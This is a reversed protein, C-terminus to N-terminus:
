VLGMASDLWSKQETVLVLKSVNGKNKRIIKTLIKFNNQNKELAQDIAKVMSDDIADNGFIEDLYLKVMSETPYSDAGSISEDTVEPNTSVEVGMVDAIAQNFSKDGENLSGHVYVIAFILQFYAVFLAKQEQPDESHEIQNELDVLKKQISGHELEFTTKNGEGDVYEIDSLGELKKLNTAFNDHEKASVRIIELAKSIGNMLEPTVELKVEDLKSEIGVTGGVRIKGAKGDLTSVWTDGDLKSVLKHEEDDDGTITRTKVGDKTEVKDKSGITFRTEKSGDEPTFVYKGADLFELNEIESDVQESDTSKSVSDFYLTRAVKHSVFFFKGDKFGIAGKIDKGNYRADVHVSNSTRSGTPTFRLVEGSGLKVTYNVGTELDKLNTVSDSKEGGKSGEGKKFVSVSGNMTIKGDDSRFAFYKLTKAFKVVGAVKKGDLFEGEVKATEGDNEVVNFKMSQATQGQGISQDRNSNVLVYENGSELGELSEVTEHQIDKNEPSENSGQETSGGGAQEGNQESGEEPEVYKEGIDEEGKSPDVIVGDMFKSNNRRLTAQKWDKFHLEYVRADSSEIEYGHTFGRYPEIEKVVKFEIHSKKEKDRDFVFEYKTNEALKESSAGEAGSAGEGGEYAKLDEETGSLSKVHQKNTALVASGVLHAFLYKLSIKRSTESTQFVYKKNNISKDIGVKDYAPVWTFNLQVWAMLEVTSKMLVKEDVNMTKPDEMSHNQTQAVGGTKDDTNLTNQEMSTESLLDGFTLLGQMLAHEPQAPQAPQSPTQTPTPAPAQNANQGQQAQEPQNQDQQSDNSQNQSQSRALGDMFMIRAKYRKNAEKIFAVFADISQSIESFGDKNLFEKDLGWFWTHLSHAGLANAVGNDEGRTVGVANAPNGSGAHSKLAQTQEDYSMKAFIVMNEKIADKLLKMGKDFASLKGNIANMYQTPTYIKVIKEDSSGIHALSLSIQNLSFDKIKSVDFASEGVNYALLIRNPIVLDIPLKDWKKFTMLGSANDKVAESTPYWISFLVEKGKKLESGLGSLNGSAVVRDMQARGMASHGDMEKNKGFFARMMNTFVAFPMHILSGVAKGLNALVGENLQEGQLGIAEKFIQQKNM